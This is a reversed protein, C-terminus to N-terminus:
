RQASITVSTGSKRGSFRKAGKGRPCYNSIICELFGEGNRMPNLIQVSTHVQLGLNLKDQERCRIKNLGLKLKMQILASYLTM